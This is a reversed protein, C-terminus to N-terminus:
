VGARESAWLLSTVVESSPLSRALSAMLSARDRRRQKAAIAELSQNMVNSLVYRGILVLSLLTVGHTFHHHAIATAGRATPWLLAIGVAAWCAGVLYGLPSSPTDRAVPM